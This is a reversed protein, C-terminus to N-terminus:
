EALAAYSVAVHRAYAPRAMLRDFYARTAPFAGRQIDIDFYRYLVHAFQVDALTLADGCLFARRALRDEAIALKAELARVAAAIAVPDRREAPTRVVRWFVPVSFAIAINIKAWEAWRDIDARATADMPWFVDDAYQNAVYRLIAGTEWLAPGEGDRLVPITGNPNMARFEPTDVGGFRHGVDYREHELGLEAVCWMVAQVNSSDARGWIRLM